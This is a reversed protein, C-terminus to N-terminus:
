TYQDEIYEILINILFHSLAKQISRDRQDLLSSAMKQYSDIAQHLGNSLMDPFAAESALENQM